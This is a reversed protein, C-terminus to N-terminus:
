EVSVKPQSTKEKDKKKRNKNQRSKIAAYPAVSKNDTAQQPTNEGKRNSKNRNKVKSTKKPKLDEQSPQGFGEPLPM